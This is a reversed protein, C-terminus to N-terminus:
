QRTLESLEQATKPTSSSVKASVLEPPPPDHWASGVRDRYLRARLTLEARELAREQWDIREADVVFNFSVSNISHWEHNPQQSIRFSSPRGLINLVEYRVGAREVVEILASDDSNPLGEYSTWIVENGEYRWANDKLIWRMAGGIKASANPFGNITEPRQLVYARAFSEGGTAPSWRREGRRDKSLEIANAGPIRRAIEALVTADDPVAPARKASEQIGFPDSCAGIVAIAFLALLRALWKM